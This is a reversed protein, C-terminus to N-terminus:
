KVTIVKDHNINWLSYLKYLIAKITDLMKIAFYTVHTYITKLFTPSVDWLYHFIGTISDNHSDPEPLEFTYSAHPAETKAFTQSYFFCLSM